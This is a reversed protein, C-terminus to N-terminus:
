LEKNNDSKLETKITKLKNEFGGELPVLFVKDLNNNPQL